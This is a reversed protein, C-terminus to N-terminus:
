PSRPPVLRLWTNTSLDYAWVDGLDRGGSKMRALGGLMVIRENVPDYVLWHGIRALPGTPLDDVVDMRPWGPGPKVTTREEAVADFTALVGDSFAVTVGHAEDFVAEGGSEVWGTNLTPSFTKRTWGPAGPDFTWTAGGLLTLVLRDVTPDCTLLSHHTGDEPVTGGQDLLTWQNSAAAFASLESIRSDRLLVQGSAPDYVLDDVAFVPPAQAPEPAQTWEDEEVSYTWPRHGGGPFAFVAGAHADYVLRGSQGARPPSMCHWTNSCVNFTWTEGSADLVVVLGHRADM